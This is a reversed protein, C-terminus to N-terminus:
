ATSLATMWLAGPDPNSWSAIGCHLADSASSIACPSAAQGASELTWVPVTSSSVPDGSAKGGRSTKTRVTVKLASPPSTESASPSLGGVRVTPRVFISPSVTVTSYGSKGPPGGSEWLAIFCMTVEPGGITPAPPRGNM